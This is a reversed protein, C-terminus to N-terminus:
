TVPEPMGKDFHLEKQHIDGGSGAGFQKYLHKRIEYKNGNFNIIEAEVQGRAHEEVYDLMLSLQREVWMRQYAYTWFGSAPDWLKRAQASDNCDIAMWVGNCYADYEQPSLTIFDPVIGLWLSEGLVGLKKRMYRQMRRDFSNWEDENGDYSWNKNSLTSEDDKEKTDKSM